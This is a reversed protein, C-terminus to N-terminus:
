PKENEDLEFKLCNKCLGKEGGASKTDIRWFCDYPCKPEKWCPIDCWRRKNEDLEKLNLNSNTSLTEKTSQNSELHSM